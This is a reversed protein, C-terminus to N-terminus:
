KFAWNRSHPWGGSGFPNGRGQKLSSRLNWPWQGPFDWSGRGGSLETPAGRVEGRHYGSRHSSAVALRGWHQAQGKFLASPLLPKLFSTRNFPLSPAPSAPVSHCLFPSSPPPSASSFPSCLKTSKHQWWLFVFQNQQSLDSISVLM